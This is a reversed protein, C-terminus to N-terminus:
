FIKLPLECTGPGVHIEGRPTQHAQSILIALQLTVYTMSQASMSEYVKENLCDVILFNQM